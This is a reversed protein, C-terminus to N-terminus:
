FPRLAWEASLFRRSPFAGRRTSRALRPPSPWCPFCFRPFRRRPPWPPPAAVAPAGRRRPRASRACQLVGKHAATEAGQARARPPREEAKKLPPARAKALVEVGEEVGVRFVAPLLRRAQRVMDALRGLLAEPM